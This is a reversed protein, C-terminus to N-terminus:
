APLQNPLDHFVEKFNGLPLLWRMEEQLAQRAEEQQEQSLRQFHCSGGDGAIQESGKIAFDMSIIRRPRGSVNHRLAHIIFSKFAFGGGAPAEAFTPDELRDAADIMDQIGYTVGRDNLINIRAPRASGHVLHTAGDVMSIDDLYIWIAIRDDKSYDSGPRLFMDSHWGFHGGKDDPIGTFRTRSLSGGTYIFDDTGLGARVIAVVTPNAICAMLAAENYYDHVRRNMRPQKPSGDEGNEIVREFAHRMAFLEEDEFIKDYLLYDDELFTEREESDTRKDTETIDYRLTGQIASEIM